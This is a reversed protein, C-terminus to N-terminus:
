KAIIEAIKKDTPNVILLKNSNLMAYQYPRLAPVKNATSVPVPHTTLDAPVASGLKATFNAPAPQKVAQDSIDKWATQQQSSTLTLSDQTMPQTTSSASGSTSSNSKPAAAATAVSIGSLLAIALTLRTAHKM